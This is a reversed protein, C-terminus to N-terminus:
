TQLLYFDHSNSRGEQDLIHLFSASKYSESIDKIEHEIPYIQCLNNIKNKNDFNTNNISLVDNM